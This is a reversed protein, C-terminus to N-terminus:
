TTPVPEPHGDLTHVLTERLSPESEFRWIQRQYLEKIGHRGLNNYSSALFAYTESFAVDCGREAAWNLRARILATQAGRRRFETRTNAHTLAALREHDSVAAVAMPEGDLEAVFLQTDQRELIAATIDTPSVETKGGDTLVHHVSKLDAPRVFPGDPDLSQPQVEGVLVTMAIGLYYGHKALLSTWAEKEDCPDLYVFHRPVEAYVKQIQELLLSTPPNAALDITRNLNQSPYWSDSTECLIAWARNLDVVQQFGSETIAATRDRKFKSIREQVPYTWGM